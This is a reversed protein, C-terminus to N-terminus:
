RRKRAFMRLWKEGGFMAVLIAPVMVCEPKKKKKAKKKM